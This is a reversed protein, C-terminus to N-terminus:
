DSQGQGPLDIPVVRNRKAFEPIQDRWNDLNCTWGHILVLAESGKGYNVYHIRMGDLTTFHSEATPNQDGKAKSTDPRAAPALALALGLALAFFFLRYLHAKCELMFVQKVRKTM